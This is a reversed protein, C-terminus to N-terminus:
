QLFERDFRAMVRERSYRQDLDSQLRTTRRQLTTLYRHVDDYSSYGLLFEPSLIDLHAMRVSELYTLVPAGALVFEAIALGFGEGYYNAHLMYDCTNIFRRIEERHHVRPLHIVREHDYFEFTNLFVFWADPREDLTARIANKVFDLNFNGDGGHRGFVVADDPIGLENRYDETLDPLPKVICPVVPIKRFRPVDVARGRIQVRRRAQRALWDSIAAFRHGHPRSADDFVHNLEPISEAVRSPAGKKVVYLADCSIERPTEYFVVDFQREFDDRVFPVIEGRAPIYIRVDHGLLDRCGLAYDFLIVETGRERLQKSHFGLLVDTPGSRRGLHLSCFSRVGM